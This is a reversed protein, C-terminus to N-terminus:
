CGVMVENVHRAFASRLSNGHPEEPSKMGRSTATPPLGYQLTNSMENTDTSLIPQSNIALQGYLRRTGLCIGHLGLDGVQIVQLWVVCTKGLHM